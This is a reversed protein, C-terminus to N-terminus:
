LWCEEDDELEKGMLKQDILKIFIDVLDPDFMISKNEILYQRIKEPEWGMRYPRDSILADWVDVISFIRAAFPIELGKLGRPYGSGDWREHHCYPVDLSDHLYPITSLLEYALGPHQKMIVWEDTSLPGPKLLIRDPIGMKGIDHLLVGRRFSTMKEQPFGARKALHCALYMVRDSHGKTEEDRLELAKSWGAITEEHARLLENYAKEENSILTVSEIALSTQGALTIFYDKWEQDDSIPRQSIVQMYGTPNKNVFLPLISRFMGTTDVMDFDSLENIQNIAEITVKKPGLQSLVTKQLDKMRSIVPAEETDIDSKYVSIVEGDMITSIIVGDVELHDICITAILDLTEEASVRELISADISRLCALKNLEHNIKKISAKQDSIDHSIVGIRKKNQTHIPFITQLLTREKGDLSKIKLEQPSNFFVSQGTAIMSLIEVRLDEMSLSQYESVSIQPLIEWIPKGIIESEPIGTMIETARNWEIVEGNEDLILLGETMQQVTTRFKEERDSLEATARMQETIDRMSGVLSPPDGPVWTTCILVNRIEGNKRNIKYEIKKVKNFERPAKEYAILRDRDEPHIFSHYEDFDPAPLNEDRQFIKYIGKSWIYIHNELDISFNGYDGIQESQEGLTQNKLLEREIFKRKQIDRVVALIVDKGYWTGRQMAAEVYFLSQSDFRLARLEIVAPEGAVVTKWINRLGDEKYDQPNAIRKVHEGIIEERTCGFMQLASDNVEIIEGKENHIFLADSISNFVTRLNSESEQLKLQAEGRKTIEEELRLGTKSIRRLPILTVILVLCALLVSVLTAESIQQTQSEYYLRMYKGTGIVCEIEPIAIVYSLKEEPEKQNPPKYWYTVFGRKDPNDKIKLIEQILYEGKIDKMDWQNTNELEPQYPQVLITGKYDVLFIYNEGYLDTYIMHRLKESIIFRAQASTIKRARLDLIDQEISNTTLDVIQVLNNRIKQIETERTYKIWIRSGVIIGILILGTLVLTQIVAFRINKKSEEVEPLKQM